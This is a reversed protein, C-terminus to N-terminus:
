KSELMKYLDNTEKTAYATDIMDAIGMLESVFKFQGDINSEERVDMNGDKMYEKYSQILKAKVPAFEAQFVKLANAKDGKELFKGVEGYVMLSYDSRADNLDRAVTYRLNPPLTEYFGIKEVLRNKTTNLLTQAKETEGVKNYAQAVREISLGYDYSPVDPIMEMLKDLVAKAKAKDGQAALDEALRVGINRYTNTYNRDTNSFSAEPLNYNGWEFDQFSAYLAKTNSRGIKGGQGFKTYIPILKYSFGSYELYDNLWFINAPDSIGGGSFYIARDWNYNAFLDIMALESKYLQSKGLTVTIQDVMQSADQASVIGYKVANAKNVPIVIKDVPLYNVAGVPYGYYDAIAQKAPNKNDLIFEIAEKATMSEQVLYKELPKVSQYLQKIGAPDYNPDILYQTIQEAPLEMIEAVSLPSDPKIISHLEGFISRVNKAVVMINDNTNLQYQGPVMQHPLAAADYTKRHSQEINWPSGLLTYNVIKVDDRFNETEQLGWLPYTDNDGYVFLISNKDLKNLYNHAMAYAAERKSRDHDDWNQFGMLIPVVACLATIVIPVAPTLERKKVKKILLYIGQVGLGIWISFAYFASVLAYDRERPEFPKVSTYFIIGVSTLLFLSLLAWWHGVNRNLQVFFGILGLMLPLMYYANRGQNEKYVAPLKSQDGLRANDIFSIGTIWNGKTVELNGEWDNQKGSFNWMFYRFFMYDLQFNMFYNFQQGFTPPQIDLFEANKQLEAVTLTGSEKKQILQSFTQEAIQRKQARLEPPDQMNNYFMPNLSFEPFGYMAAYNEMVDPQANYMKPFFVEHKKNYIYKRRESLKLYKGSKEDKFYNYGDPESDYSGDAKIKIGDEAIHATYAPGYYTPWDGYQERNFYDLMGLATDPDNLNMHPNANARIPIVLWSTFGILMFMISLVLTHALNWNYKKTYKLLLWFAIGLIIAAIITGSNFPLGFNNVVFMETRGFFTMVAKFLVSFVFMLFIGTFLNAWLFTKINIKYNKSYYIYCVAPIALIAMLHVATALGILLSILIFWRNARKSDSEEEWKCGLWVIIATFLSAMAYVEGEAASFWFSDSFMFVSSGVIGSGITIISQAKSLAVNHADPALEGVKTSFFMRRVFHTITWFLLMITLASSIASMSNIVVAYKSTDGFALGAWVAGILQFLAAGPAHTVGLKASSVIYEGCDWFSLKREMTMLYVTSAIAFMAWGTYNNLKKFNINM